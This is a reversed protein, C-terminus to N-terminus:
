PMKYRRPPVSEVLVREISWNTLTVIARASRTASSAEMLLQELASRPQPVEGRIGDWELVWPDSLPEETTLLFYTDTGYPPTILVRGLPIAAPAVEGIPFRNEVSGSPPFLLTSQGYSDIAFVYVHRKSVGVSGRQLTLAYTENGTMRQPLDLRYPWEARPPSELANWAVIKHLQLARYQLAVADEDLWTTRLPLSTKHKDARTVGPRVWAYELRGRYFRGTLIYDAQEPAVEAVANGAFRIGDALEPPIPVQFFFSSGLPITAVAAAPSDYRATAADHLLEWHNGNWRLTYEPSTAM